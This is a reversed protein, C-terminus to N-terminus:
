FTCMNRNSKFFHTNSIFTLSMTHRNTDTQTARHKLFFTLLSDCYYKELVSVEQASIMFICSDDVEEWSKRLNLKTKEWFKEQVKDDEHAISDWKNLLFIVDKPSFSVMKEM